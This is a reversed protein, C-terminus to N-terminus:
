SSTISPESPDSCVIEGAVSSQDEREPVSSWADSQTWAILSSASGEYHARMRERRLCAAEDDLELQVEIPTTM